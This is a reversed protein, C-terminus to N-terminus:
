EREDEEVLPLDVVESLAHAIVSAQEVTVAGEALADTVRPHRVLVDAQEIRTRADPGSLRYRGALWHQTTTSQTRERLGRLDAEAILGARLATNRSEIQL